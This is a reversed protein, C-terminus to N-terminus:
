VYQDAVVVDVPEVARQELVSLGVRSSGSARRRDLGVLEIHQARARRTV